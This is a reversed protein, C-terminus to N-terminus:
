TVYYIHILPSKHLLTIIFLTTSLLPYCHTLYTLPNDRNRHLFPLHNLTLGISASANFSVQFFEFGLTIVLFINLPQLIGNIAIKWLYNVIRWCNVNLRYVAPNRDLISQRLRTNRYKSQLKINGM